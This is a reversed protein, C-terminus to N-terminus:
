TGTSKKIFTFYSAFMGDEVLQLQFIRKGCQVLYHDIEGHLLAITKFM